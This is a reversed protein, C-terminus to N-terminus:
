RPGRAEDCDQDREESKGPVLLISLDPDLESLARNLNYSFMRCARIFSERTIGDRFLLSHDVRLSKEVVYASVLLFKRNMENAFQLRQVVSTSSRFYTYTRLAVSGADRTVSIWFPFWGDETVYIENDNELKHCIVAQELALSLSVPTVDEDEIVTCM